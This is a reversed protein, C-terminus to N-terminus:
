LLQDSCLVVTCLSYTDFILFSVAVSLTSLEKVKRNRWSCLLGHLEKRDSGHPAVGSDTVNMIENIPRIIENEIYRYYPLAILQIAAKSLVSFTWILTFSNIQYICRLM